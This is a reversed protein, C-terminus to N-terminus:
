LTSRTNGKLLTKIKIKKDERKQIKICKQINNFMMFLSTNYQITNCTAENQFLYKERKQIKMCKQINNFMMFLSTNYQITNCTAENQFLLKIAVRLYVMGRNSVETLSTPFLISAKTFLIVGMM